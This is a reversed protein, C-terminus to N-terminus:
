LHMPNRRVPLCLSNEDQYVFNPVCIYTVNSTESSSLADSAMDHKCLSYILLAYSCMLSYPIPPEYWAYWLHYIHM